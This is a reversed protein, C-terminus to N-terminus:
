NVYRPEFESEEEMEEESDSQDADLFNWGGSEVFGEPDQMSCHLCDNRPQICGMHIIKDISVEKISKLINKWNLNVKSEYYKM